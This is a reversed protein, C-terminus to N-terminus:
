YLSLFLLRTQTEDLHRNIFEFQSQTPALIEDGFFEGRFEAEAIMGDINLEEEVAALEEVTMDSRFIGRNRASRLIQARFAERRELAVRDARVRERNVRALEM